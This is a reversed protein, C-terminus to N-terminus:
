AVEQGSGDGATEDVTARTVEVRVAGTDDALDFAPTPTSNAPLVVTDAVVDGRVAAPLQLYTDGRQVRVLDGDSIGLAAATATGLTATAPRATALLDVAGTLLQGNDLLLPRVVGTLSGDDSATAAPPTVEPMAHPQARTGLRTMEGRIAALDDVGLDH